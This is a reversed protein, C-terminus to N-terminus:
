TRHVKEEVVELVVGDADVGDNCKQLAAVAREAVANCAPAKQGFARAKNCKVRIFVIARAVWYAPGKACQALGVAGPMQGRQKQVVQGIHQAVGHVFAKFEHAVGLAQGGALRAKICQGAGQGLGGIQGVACQLAQSQLGNFAVLRLQHQQGHGKGARDIRSKADGLADLPRVRVDADAQSAAKHVGLQALQFVCAHEVM